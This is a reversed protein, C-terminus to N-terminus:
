TFFARGISLRDIQGEVGLQQPLFRDNCVMFLHFIFYYFLDHSELILLLGMPWPESVQTVAVASICINHFTTRIM